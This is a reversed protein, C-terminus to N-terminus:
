PTPSGVVSPTPTVIIIPTPATPPAPLLVFLVVALLVLVFSGILWQQSRHLWHLKKEAVVGYADRVRQWASISLENFNVGPHIRPVFVRTAYALSILWCVLPTCFLVLLLWGPLVWQVSSVQIRISSFTIIAAYLVQVASTIAILQKAADEIHTIAQVPTENWVKRWHEATEQLIREEEHDLGHGHIPTTM